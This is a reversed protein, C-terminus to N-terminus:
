GVLDRLEDEGIIEVGLEGAKRAKSGPQDGVVVYDTKKSVSSSVAGGAARILDGATDRSLTPLTGTLVFTKGALAGAEKRQEVLVHLGLEQMRAIDNRHAAVHFWAVIADAVRPGIDPLAELEEKTARAVAELSGFSTALTRATESGVQDIGLGFLLRHLPVQKAADIAAILNDASKEGLGELPALEDARLAFIDSRSQILGEDYLKEILKNGLGDINLAGKSVFHALQRLRITRGNTHTTYLAVSTAGDKGEVPRKEVPYGDPDHTPIGIKKEKGTRLKPLVQLIKPIIDGAKEIVVTDGIRVDLREIEDYNHLTAHTVTTGALQVPDLHAVPTLVGTRGVQWVVDRLVTTGQEAPFKMAIAWRPSKGTFGLVDQYQRQNVKVVLGDVWFPKVGHDRGKWKDYMPAIDAVSRCEQWDTDTSFGLAALRELEEQQTQPIDGASIDYATFQLERAAVLAPDLQRITGAAMNRPNAFLPLEAKARENNVRDFQRESLWVEGEVVIDVPENLELPVTFITKANNTVDEGVAGDGRTAATTLKGAEYTLVLHLGDIKLEVLYTLDDPREGLEKELIKANREEWQALDEMSFADDFSWQAVQHEVKQFADIPTGGIRQTPSDATLLEPHAVELRKLEDMLGEYMADTVTPDNEVHYRYRLDRIQDRLKEVRQVVDKKSM